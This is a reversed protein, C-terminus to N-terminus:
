SFILKLTKIELISIIAFKEKPFKRPMRLWLQTLGDHGLRQAGMLQLVGPKGTRWYRGSNTWIWTWQTLSSMRGDWGKHGTRRRGEIKEMIPTKELSDARQLLHDNVTLSHLREAMDLEKRGWPSYGVLSRLGHLKGPLLVPTPQWKRRRPSKRVWPDFRSKVCQLCISKWRLWWPLGFDRLIPFTM